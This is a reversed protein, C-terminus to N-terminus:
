QVRRVRTWRKTNGTYLKYSNFSGHRIVAVEGVDVSVRKYEIQRWVQGNELEFIRRKYADRSLGAITSTLSEGETESKEKAFGFDDEDPKSNPAVVVAATAAAAASEAALEEASRQAEEAEVGFAEDYCALREAASEIRACAAGRDDAVASTVIFVLALASGTCTLGIEYRSLSNRM